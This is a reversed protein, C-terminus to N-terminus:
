KVILLCGHDKNGLEDSGDGGPEDIISRVVHCLILLDRLKPLDSSRISFVCSAADPKEEVHTPM